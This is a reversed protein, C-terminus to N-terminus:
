ASKRRASKVTEFVLWGGLLLLFIGGVAIQVFLSYDFRYRGTSPDYVTCFLKVRDVLNATLHSGPQPRNLVLEKLPEVLAPLEFDAGYVQRYIVGERDVLTIQNVHDFGRPTPFYSFGLNNTLQQMTNQDASLFWWDTDHVKQQRAFSAMATPTDNPTDFGITLVQFSDEGLADRANRVATALHRTIAPCVHHCSTFIMSIIVPKGRLDALPFSMGNRDALLLDQLPQGLAAQSRNIADDASYDLTVAKSNQATGMEPTVQQGQAMTSIALLVSLFSLFRTMSLGNQHPM